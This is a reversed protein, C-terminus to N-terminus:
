HSKPEKLPNIHHQTQKKDLHIAASELHSAPERVGHLITLLLYRRARIVQQHELLLLTSLKIM